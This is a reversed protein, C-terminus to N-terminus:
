VEVKAWKYEMKINAPDGGPKVVFEYKLKGSNDSYIVWDINHYVEHYTLKHYGKLNVIGEPCHAYYFNWGSETEFEQTVNNKDIVANKLVMDTRAFDTYPSFNPNPQGGLAPDYEDRHHKLFVYSIGSDTIYFELGPVSAKYHVTTALSGDDTIIQGRNPVFALNEGLSFAPQAAKSNFSYIIIFLIYLKRM